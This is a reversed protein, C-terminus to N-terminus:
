ADSAGKEEPDNYIQLRAKSFGHIEAAQWLVVAVVAGILFWRGHLWEPAGIAFLIVAFGVVKVFYTAVFAGIAGSPNRRGVFHGVLLSIGFFLMVLFGGLVASVAGSAGNLLAAPIACLLLGAAAAISSRKLLHLWLSPTPGSTGVPRNGSAPGSEANSTM